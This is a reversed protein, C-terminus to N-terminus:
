VALNPGLADQSAVEVRVHGLGLDELAAKAETLALLPRNNVLSLHALVVTHLHEGALLRLM